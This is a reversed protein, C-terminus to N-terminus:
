SSKGTLGLRSYIALAESKKSVSRYPAWYDRSVDQTFRRLTREKSLEETKKLTSVKPM